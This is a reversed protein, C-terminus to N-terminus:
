FKDNQVIMHWELKIYITLVLLIVVNLSFYSRQSTNECNVYFSFIYVFIKRYLIKKEDLKDNQDTM